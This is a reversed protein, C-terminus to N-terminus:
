FAPDDCGPPDSYGSRGGSRRACGNRTSDSGRASCWNSESCIPSARPHIVGGSDTPDTGVVLHGGARLLAVEMATPYFRLGYISSTNGATAEPRQLYLERLSPVLVDLGPPV